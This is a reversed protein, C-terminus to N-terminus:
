SGFRPDAHVQGTLILAVWRCQIEAIPMLSGLPQVLGIIALTPHALAPPFVYKYLTM